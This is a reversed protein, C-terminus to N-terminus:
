SGGPLRLKILKRLNMYGNRDFGAGAINERHTFYVRPRYLTFVGLDQWLLEASRAAYELKRDRSESVKIEKIYNDLLRVNNNVSRGAVTDRAIFDRIFELSLCLSEAMIPVPALYLDAASRGLLLHTEIKERWLVDAFYTATPQFERESSGIRVANKIPKLISLLQQSKVPSYKLLRPCSDMVATPCTQVIIGDGGFLSGPNDDNVRYYLATTMIGRQNYLTSVNPLLAVFYPAPSSVTIIGSDCTRPYDYSFYGDLVGSEFDLQMEAPSIYRRITIASGSEAFFVDTRGPEAFYGFLDPFVPSYPAQNFYVTGIIIASVSDVAATQIVATLKDIVTNDFAIDLARSYSVGLESVEIRGSFLSDDNEYVAFESHPYVLTERGAPFYLRGQQFQLITTQIEGANARGMSVLSIVFGFIFVIL